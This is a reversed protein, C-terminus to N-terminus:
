SIPKRHPLHLAQVRYPGRFGAARLQDWTIQDPDSTESALYSEMEDYYDAPSELEWFDDCM